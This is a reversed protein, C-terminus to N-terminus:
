VRTRKQKTKNNNNNNNSSHIQGKGINRPQLRGSVVFFFRIDQSVNRHSPLSESQKNPQKQKKMKRQLALRGACNFLPHRSKVYHTPHSMQKFSESVVCAPVLFLQYILFRDRQAGYIFLSHTEYNYLTPRPKYTKTQSIYQPNCKADRRSTTLDHCNYPPLSSGNPLTNLPFKTAVRIKKQEGKAHQVNAKTETRARTTLRRQRVRM